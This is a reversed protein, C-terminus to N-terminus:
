RLPKLRALKSKLGMARLFGSSAIPESRPNSEGVLTVNLQWHAPKTGEKRLLRTLRIEADSALPDVQKGSAYITSPTFEIVRGLVDVQVLGPLKVGSSLTYTAAVLYSAFEGIAPATAQSRVFSEDADPASSEGAALFRWVPSTEVASADLMPAPRDSATDM